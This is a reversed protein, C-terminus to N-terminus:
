EQEKHKVFANRNVGKQIEGTVINHLICIIPIYVRTFVKFDNM